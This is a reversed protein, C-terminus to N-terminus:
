YGPYHQYFESGRHMRCCFFDVQITLGQRWVTAKGCPIVPAPRNDIQSSCSCYPLLSASRIDDIISRMDDDFICSGTNYCTYCGIWCQKTLDHPCIDRSQRGLDLVAEVAWGRLTSCNSDARPSGQIFVLDTDSPAIYQLSEQGHKLIFEM